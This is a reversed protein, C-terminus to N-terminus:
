YVVLGKIKNLSHIMRRAMSAANCLIVDAGKCSKIVEDETKSFVRVVKADVKEVEIDPFLSNVVVIFCKAKSVKSGAM